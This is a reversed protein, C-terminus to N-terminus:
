PWTHNEKIRCCKRVESGKGPKFGRACMGGMGPKEWHKIPNTLIDPFLPIGKDLFRITTHQRWQMLGNSVMEPLAVVLEQPLAEQQEEVLQVM